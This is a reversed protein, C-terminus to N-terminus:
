EGESEKLLEIFYSLQNLHDMLAKKGIETLTYTTRPKNAVFSKEMTVFTAKELVKMHAGLNGDTLGLVQKLHKFDTTGEKALVTMIGLRAKPAFIDNM